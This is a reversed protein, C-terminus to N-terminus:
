PSLACLHGARRPSNIVGLLFLNSPQCCNPRTASLCNRVAHPPSRHRSFLTSLPIVPGETDVVCETVPVRMRVHVCAYVMYRARAHMRTCACARACVSACVSVCLWDPSMLTSGSFWQIRRMAPFETSFFHFKLHFQSNATM